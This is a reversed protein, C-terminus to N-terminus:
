GRIHIIYANIEDNMARLQLYTLVSRFALIKEVKLNRMEKLVQLVVFMDEPTEKIDTSNVLNVNSM